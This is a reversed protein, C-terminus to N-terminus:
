EQLQNLYMLKQYNNSPTTIFNLLFKLLKDKSPSSIKIAPAATNSLFTDSKAICFLKLPNSNKDHIGPVTPPPIFIFAPQKPFSNLSINIEICVM